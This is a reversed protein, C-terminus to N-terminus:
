FRQSKWGHSRRGPVPMPAKVSAWIAARTAPSTSSTPTSGSASTVILRPTCSWCEPAPPSSHGASKATPGLYDVLLARCDRRTIVGDDVAALLEDAMSGPLASRRREVQRAFRLMQLAGPSSGVMRLNFPGLVDFTAGAWDILHERQDAPWGVLDPVVSLPLSAALDVGDVDGQRVAAAVLEDAARQVQDGLAAIARPLMRHALLKRRRDHEAGDSALTTRGSMRNSIPNLAVASASRFTADDLLAARCEAYRPLAYVRHAPLWVVPGTDRLRRYHPYPDLIAEDTYLNVGRAPDRLRSFIM